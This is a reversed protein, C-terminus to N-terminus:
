LLLSTKCSYATSSCNQKEALPSEGEGGLLIQLAILPTEQYIVNLENISFFNPYEVAANLTQKYKVKM